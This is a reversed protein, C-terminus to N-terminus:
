PEHVRRSNPLEVIFTSGMRPRSQVQITGGLGEVITRVIFLGLGLGAYHRSSVGREFPKFIQERMEPAVGIGLDKVSLTTVGGEESVHVTIPKGEGFKIANSILNTAVQQLRFKDWEGIPHGKTNISLSSGSKTLESKLDTVAARVLEALDVEEFTFYIQGSQIRGLDLLEDVFRALRRDEREIIELVKPGAAAPLKGRQLGQVAMHVSTIPGRIEHAAVALFEDRAQLAEQAERYLRGNEIALAARSALTEAFELDEGSYHRRPPGVLTIAGTVAGKVVLPVAMCSRSGASYITSHGTLVSNHLDPSFSNVSERGVVILRRPHGNGLLDVACLDGMYPVALHAVSDLAPEVDLSSLLRTADSLFLARRLLKERETVDRFSWVRGVIEHGLRQPISYREFVRGDKFHLVDFSDREPDNYLAHIGCLFEDPSELQDCVHELLKEDDHLRAVSDPIRWLTLFRHNYKTVRASTDVVLIGDATADITAELLSRARNANDTAENLETTDWCCGAVSVPQGNEDTIVDGRTHLVRKTGDPRVIRHDSVFPRRERLADFLAANVRERDEPDARQLYAEYTGAFQGPEIGYIRYLEESWTVRDDKINWEFSGVHAVRQAQRLLSESRALREKTKREETIDYAVAICGIAQNDDRMQEIFIAYWYEGFKYQLSQSEGALAARHCAIVPHTPDHTGLIEFISMGPRARPSVNKAFRGAVYTLRLDHDTTWIAGPLQRFMMRVYRDREILRAHSAM